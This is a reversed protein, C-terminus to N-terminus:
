HDAVASGRGRYPIGIEYRVEEWRFNPADYRIPDYFTALDGYKITLTAEFTGDDAIPFRWGEKFFLVSTSPETNGPRDKTAAIYLVAKGHQERWEKTLGTGRVTIENYKDTYLAAGEGYDITFSPGDTVDQSVPSATNAVPANAVSNNTVPVTDQALVPTMPLVMAGALMLACCGQTARRFSSKSSPLSSM